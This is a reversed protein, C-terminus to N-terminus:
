IENIFNYFVIGDLLSLIVNDENSPNTIHMQFGSGFNDKMSKSMGKFSEVMGDWSSVLQENDPNLALLMVADAVDGKLDFMFAKYEESYRIDAMGEFNDEMIAMILDAKTSDDIEKLPTAEPDPEKSEEVKVPEQVKVTEKEKNDVSTSAQKAPEKPEEDGGGLAGAIIIIVLVIFWWRKYFPKKM